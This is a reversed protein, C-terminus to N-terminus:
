LRSTEIIEGDRGVILHLRRGEHFFTLRHWGADEGEGRECVSTIRGERMMRPVATPALEFGTAIVEADVEFSGKDIIVKLM